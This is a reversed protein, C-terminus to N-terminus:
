LPPNFLCNRFEWYHNVYVTARHRVTESNYAIQTIKLRFHRLASKDALHHRLDLISVSESLCNSVEKKHNSDAKTRDRVTELNYAIERM